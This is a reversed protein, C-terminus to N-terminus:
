RRSQTWASPIPFKADLERNLQLVNVRPEGLVGLTRGDKHDTVLKRIEDPTTNRVSAVRNIQYEAAAPSIHPDLGSASATVLDAPIPGGQDLHAQKLAEVRDGIAKLLDPNTPGLNAGSSAGSNNAFPSTGSPRGWFYHPADFPQGILESGVAKGDKDRILSGNASSPFLGQGILTVLLPYAVGTLLTLLGFVVFAPRLQSLM